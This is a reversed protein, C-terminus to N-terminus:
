AQATVEVVRLSILDIGVAAQQAANGRVSRVFAEACEASEFTVLVVSESTERDLTWCGTVFGPAERVSPVILQQLGVRQEDERSLDM